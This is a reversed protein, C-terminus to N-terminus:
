ITAFVFSSAVEETGSFTDFQVSRDGEKFEKLKGPPGVHDYVPPRSLYVELYPIESPRAGKVAVM